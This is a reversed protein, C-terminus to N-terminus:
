PPVNSEVGILAEQDDSARDDRLLSPVSLPVTSRVNPDALIVLTHGILLLWAVQTPVM